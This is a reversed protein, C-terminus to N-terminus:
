PRVGILLEISMDSLGDKSLSAYKEDWVKQNGSLVISLEDDIRKQNSADFKKKASIYQKESVVDTDNFANFIAHVFGDETAFSTEVTPVGDVVGYRVTEIM